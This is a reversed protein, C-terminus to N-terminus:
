LFTDASVVHGDKGNFKLTNIEYTRPDKGQKYIAEEQGYDTKKVAPWRPWPNKETREDPAEPMIEFQEVRAAGCRLSTGVCDNGTDGGGIVIVNKGKLDDKIADYGDEILKQTTEKLFIWRLAYAKSSAGPSLFTM